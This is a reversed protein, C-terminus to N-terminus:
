IDWYTYSGLGFLFHLHKCVCSLYVYLFACQFNFSVISFSFFSLFLEVEHLATHSPAAFSHRKWLRDQRETGGVCRQCCCGSGRRECLQWRPAQRRQAPAPLPNNEHWSPTRTCGAYAPVPVFTPQLYPPFNRRQEFRARYAARILEVQHRRQNEDAGHSPAVMAMDEPTVFPPFDLRPLAQQSYQHYPPSYPSLPLEDDSSLSRPDMRSTLMGPPARMIFSLDGRSGGLGSATLAPDGHISHRNYVSSCSRAASSRLRPARDSLADRERQAQELTLYLPSARRRTRRSPQDPSEPSPSSFAAVQPRSTLRDCLRESRSRRRQTGHSCSSRRETENESSGKSSSEEAVPALHDDLQYSRPVRPTEREDVIRGAQTKERLHLEDDDPSSSETMDLVPIPLPSPSPPLRDELLTGLSRSKTDHSLSVARRLGIPRLPPQQPIAPKEPMLARPVMVVPKRLTGNPPYHYVVKSPYENTQLAPRTSLLDDRSRSRRLGINRQFQPVAASSSVGSSLDNLHGAMSLSRFLGKCQRTPPPATTHTVPPYRLYDVVTLRQAETTPPYAMSLPRRVTSREGRMTGFRDAAHMSVPRPRRLTNKRPSASQEAVFYMEATERQQHPASHHSEGGPYFEAASAAFSARRSRAAMQVEVEELAADAGRWTQRREAGLQGGHRRPQAPLLSDTSLWGQLRQQTRLLGTSRALSGLWSSAAKSWRRPREDSNGSLGSASVPSATKERPWDM